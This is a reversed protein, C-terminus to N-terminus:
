LFINEDLLFSTNSLINDNIKKKLIKLKLKELKLFM